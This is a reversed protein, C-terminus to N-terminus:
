GSIQSLIAPDKIKNDDAFLLIKSMIEATKPDEDAFPLFIRGRAQSHVPLVALMGVGNQHTVGSGMHVSYNGMAGEIEAHATQFKVNSVSLMALLEKAIAIRMEVTSSSSEPDVGGAHAASVVLDIDRMVESFIVPPIEKFPLPRDEDRSFFRIEEITPAEIDSPSFWDALAYMKAILNEKHYVRQLGEEYDATWGRTKLLAVTKQPQVQNGAYRRSINIESLEDQTVPYYERFIQKFPQVIKNEYLRRQYASWCKGTIFDYPHAIILSATYHPETEKGDLSVLYLRNERIKPFGIFEGSVFALSAIMGSLAPHRMLRSVEGATFATRSVMAMEFGLKARKKQDKLDKVATQIEIVTQNDALAKPVAKLPKGEKSVCIAPTGDGDFELCVTVGGIDQPKTLPRLGDMKQSELYWTMRDSDGFGTTLALNQLAILVAKKESAQRQAGFQKIEKAYKQIFEYRALADGPNGGDLPILAYARLKEQNRKDTIETETQSKDLRGLVADTYLQSRRHAGNSETIYKANKYLEDFTKEGVAAYAELFWDKDFTGDAFQQQSIPSYLAVKTEKEVSFRENIHAHFLWVASSLGSICTAKEALDTWQPAYMVAQLLRNKTIGASKLAANLGDATDEPLPYCNKLLVSLTTKKTHDSGAWSYGRHFGDKGLATLLAAFHKVGGFFYGINAAASTLPTPLEGRREEVTVIRDIAKALFPKFLPYTENAQKQLTATRKSSLTWKTDGTFCHMYGAANSGSVLEFLLADDSILGAKHARFLSLNDYVPMYRRGTLLYEYWAENWFAAFQEDTEVSQRAIDRWSSIIGIKLMCNAEYNSYSYYYVSQSKTQFAKMIDTEPILEVLNKWVALAFDFVGEYNAELVSRLTSQVLMEKLKVYKNFDLEESFPLGDFIKETEPTFRSGYHLGSSTYCLIKAITTPSVKAANLAAVIEDALYYNYIGRAGPRREEAPKLPLRYPEAGIIVKSRGGGYTETECEMKENSLIVNQIPMIAGCLEDDDVKLLRALEKKAYVKARPRKTAWTNKNFDPSSPNYLGYGNEANFTDEPAKETFGNLIIAIDKPLDARAM